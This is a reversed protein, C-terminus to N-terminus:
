FRQYLHCIRSLKLFNLENQDLGPKKLLPRIRSCKFVESVYATELPTHVKKTLISLLEDICSKLLWTPIPDLECSTNPLKLIILKITQDSVPVFDTLTTVVSTDPIVDVTYESTSLPNQERIIDSRIGEVKNIFLNSFVQALQQSSTSSPLIVEKSEGLLHKTVM